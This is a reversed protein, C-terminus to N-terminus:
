GRQIRARKGAIVDARQELVEFAAQPNARVAAAQKTQAVALERRETKRLTQVATQRPRDRRAPLLVGPNPGIGPQAVVHGPAEFKQGRLESKLVHSHACHEFTAGACHPEASLSSASVAVLVALERLVALAGSEGAVCDLCDDFIRLAANNDTGVPADVDDLISREQRRQRRNRCQARDHRANKVLISLMPEPNRCVRVAQIHEGVSRQLDVGRGVAQGAIARQGYM